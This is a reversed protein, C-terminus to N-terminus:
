DKFIVSALFLGIVLVFLGLGVYFSTNPDMTQSVSSEVFETTSSLSDLKAKLREVEERLLENEKILFEKAQRNRISEIYMRKLISFFLPPTGQKSPFFYSLLLLFITSFVFFSRYLILRVNQTFVSLFFNCFKLYIDIM